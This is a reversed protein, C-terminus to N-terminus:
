EHGPTEPVEREARDVLAKVAESGAERRERDTRCAAWEEILHLGSFILQSDTQGEIWGSETSIRTTQSVVALRQGGPGGM